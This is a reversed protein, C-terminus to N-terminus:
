NRLLARDTEGRGPRQVTEPHIGGRLLRVGPYERPTVANAVETSRRIL